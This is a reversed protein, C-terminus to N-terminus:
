GSQERVNHNELYPRFTPLRTLARLRLNVTLLEPADVGSCFSVGGTLSSVVSDTATDLGVQSVNSIKARCRM